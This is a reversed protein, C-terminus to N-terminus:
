KKGAKEKALNVAEKQVERALKRESKQEPSMPKKGTRLRRYMGQQKNKKLRKRNGM